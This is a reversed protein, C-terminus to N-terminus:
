RGGTHRARPATTSAAADRDFPMADLLDTLVFVRQVSEPGPVLSLECGHWECVEKAFLVTRLGMLDMFTLESLDLVLRSAGGNCLAEIAAQLEPSAGMDLEGGLLLTQASGDALAHM